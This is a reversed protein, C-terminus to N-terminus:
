RSADKPPKPTDTKKRKIELVQGTAADVELKLLQGGAQLLKVEYIWRRDHRELELELVQGPHTRQLRELLTPLPLVEGAQVAARALEHDRQDSAGADTAALLLAMVGVVLAPLAFRDRVKFPRPNPRAFPSVVPNDASSASRGM